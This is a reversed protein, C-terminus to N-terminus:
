AEHPQGVPKEPDAVLPHWYPIMYNGSGDWVGSTSQNMVTIITLLWESDGIAENTAVSQRFAQVQRSFKSGRGGPLVEVPLSCRIFETVMQQLGADTQTNGDAFNPPLFTADM